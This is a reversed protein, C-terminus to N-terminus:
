VFRFFMNQGVFKLFVITDHIFLLLTNANKPVVILPLFTRLNSFMAKSFADPKFSTYGLQQFIQTFDIGSVVVDDCYLSSCYLWKYFLLNVAVKLKPGLGKVRGFFRCGTFLLEISGFCGAAFFSFWQFFWLIKYLSNM